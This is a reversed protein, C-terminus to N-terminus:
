FLISAYIYIIIALFNKKFYSQFMVTSSAADDFLSVFTLSLMSFILIQFSIYVSHFAAYVFILVTDLSPCLFYQDSFSLM